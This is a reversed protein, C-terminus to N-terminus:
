TAKKNKKFHISKIEEHNNVIETVIRLFSKYKTDFYKSYIFKGKEFIRSDYKQITIEMSDIAFYLRDFAVGEGYKLHLEEKRREVFHKLARRSIYIRPNHVVKLLESYKPILFGTELYYYERILKKIKCIHPINKIVRERYYFVWSTIM